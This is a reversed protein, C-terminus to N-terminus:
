QQLDVRAVQGIETGAFEILQYVYLARGNSTFSPQAHSFPGDTLQEVNSGDPRMRFIQGTNPPQGRNSTFYIWRGDPSWVPWGDYASNNSINRTRGRNTATVCIESNRQTQSQDWNRATGQVTCRHAILSGDPSVNPFTCVSRCSTHRRVDSGDAAMSYIDHWQRDWDATVDPTGRASNFFIRRGDSSWHPHSDDGKTLTLRMVKRSAVDLKYIDSEDANAADAPTMSFVIERGDPSWSPTTPSTGDKAGDYFLQPQSGDANSVWLAERGTRTSVFVVRTGDPSASPYSDTVATVAIVNGMLLLALRMM